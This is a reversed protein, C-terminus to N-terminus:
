RPPSDTVEVVANASEARDSLARWLDMSPEPAHSIAFGLRDWLPETDAPLISRVYAMCYVGVARRLADMEGHLAEIQSELAARLGADPTLDAAKRKLGLQAELHLFAQVQRQKAQGFQRGIPALLTGLDAMRQVVAAEGASVGVGLGLTERLWRREERLGWVIFGATLAVGGFGILVALAVIAPTLPGSNVVRNFTLHVAMAAAWGLALSALRTRGRGFRFRGLSVGVLASASGHMLSTSFARNVSLALPDSSRALYFLNEVVAFATGAAFGYIAGDVFYTFEPRRVYYALCLSKCVEEVVPAVTTRVLFLASAAALGGTVLLRLASTNLAFSLPFALLGALSCAVVVGFGGSAYLDLRRVGWLFAIPVGVSVAVPILITSPNAPM